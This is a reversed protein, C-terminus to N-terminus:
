ERRSDDLALRLDISLRCHAARSRM